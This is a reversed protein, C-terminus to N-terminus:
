QYIYYVTDWNTWTGLEYVETSRSLPLGDTRFVYRNNTKVIGGPYAHCTQQTALPLRRQITGDTPLEVFYEVDICPMQYARGAQFTPNQRADYTSTFVAYPSLVRITGTQPNYVASDDQQSTISGNAFVPTSLYGILATDAPDPPSFANNRYRFVNNGSYVYRIWQAFSAGGPSNSQLTSDCALRGAEYKLFITDFREGVASAATYREYSIIRSALTDSGPYNYQLHMSDGNPQKDTGTVTLIRGANDYTLRQIYTTDQGAPLTSDITFLGVLRIGGTVPNPVQPQTTPFDSVERQCATLFLVLLLYSFVPKPM